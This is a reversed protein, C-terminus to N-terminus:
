NKKFGTATTWWDPHRAQLSEAARAAHGEGHFLGFCTAGSGSMRALRCGDVLELATLIEGVAPVLRIAAETLDNRRVQLAALFALPDAFVADAIRDAPSFTGHRAKFVEPTSVGQLPNVLVVGLAPLDPAPTVAEGIGAMHTPRSRLCVPIDAGLGLALDDLATQDLNLDWFRCLASLVAAADASGGGIGAAVPINKELYIAAGTTVGCLARLENAARLILNDPGTPVRGAFPGGVVLSMESAASVTLRDGFDTFAVLSELLHYGDARRGTVHLYLNVKAPATVSVTTM